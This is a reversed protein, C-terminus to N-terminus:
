PRKRDSVYKMQKIINATVKASYRKKKEFCTALSLFYYLSRKELLMFFKFSFIDM